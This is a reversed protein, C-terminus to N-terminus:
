RLYNRKDSIKGERNLLLQLMVSSIDMFFYNGECSSPFITMRFTGLKEFDYTKAHVYAYNKNSIYFVNFPM